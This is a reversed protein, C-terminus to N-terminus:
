SHTDKRRLEFGEHQLNIWIIIIVRISISLLWELIIGVGGYGVCAVKSAVLYAM